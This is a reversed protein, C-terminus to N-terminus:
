FRRYASLRFLEFTRDPSSVRVAWSPWRTEVWADLCAPYVQASTGLALFRCDSAFRSSDMYAGVSSRAGYPTGSDPIM